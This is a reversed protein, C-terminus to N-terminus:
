ELFLLPHFGRYDLSTLYIVFVSPLLLIRFGQKFDLLKKGPRIQTLYDM